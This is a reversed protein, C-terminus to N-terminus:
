KNGAAARIDTIDQKGYGITMRFMGRKKRVEPIANTEGTTLHLLPRRRRRQLGNVIPVQFSFHVLVSKNGRHCHFIYIQVQLM